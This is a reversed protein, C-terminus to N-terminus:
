QAQASLKSKLAQAVDKTVLDTIDGGFSAVEKILSSSISQYEQSTYLFITDVRPNLKRNMMLMAVEYDLDTINRLGRIMFNANISRAFEVLLGSFKAVEVNKMGAVASQCLQLRENTSFLLGKSPTDFVALVLKGAISAARQVIDLHGKTIPDFSGAYLGLTM